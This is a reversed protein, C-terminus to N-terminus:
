IAAFRLVLSPCVARGIGRSLHNLSVLVIASGSFDQIRRNELRSCRSELFDCSGGISINGRVRGCIAVIISPIGPITITDVIEM